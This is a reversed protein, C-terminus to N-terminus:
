QKELSALLEATSFDPESERRCLEEETLAPPEQSSITPSRSPIVWGLIRGDIDCFELPTSLGLLKQRLHEDVQIQDM